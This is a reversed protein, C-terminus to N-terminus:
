GGFIMLYIYCCVAIYPKFLVAALGGFLIFKIENKM